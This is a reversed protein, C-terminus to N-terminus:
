GVGGTDTPIPAYQWAYFNSIDISKGMGSIAKDPNSWLRGHGTWASVPNLNGHKNRGFLVIERGDGPVESAPRWPTAPPLAKIYKRIARRILITARDVGPSTRLECNQSVGVIYEVLGSLQGGREIQDTM